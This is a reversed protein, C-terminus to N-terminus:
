QLQRGISLLGEVDSVSRDMSESKLPIYCDDVM